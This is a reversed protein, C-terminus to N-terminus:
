NGGSAGDGKNPAYVFYALTVVRELDFKLTRDGGGRGNQAALEIALVNPDCGSSRPEVGLTDVLKLAKKRPSLLICLRLATFADNLTNKYKQALIM